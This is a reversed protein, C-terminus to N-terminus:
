ISHLKENLSYKARLCQSSPRLGPPPVLGPGWFSGMKQPIWVRFLCNRACRPLLKEPLEEWSPTLNRVTKSTMKHMIRLLPFGLFSICVCCRLFPLALPFSCGNFVVDWACCMTTELRLEVKVKVENTQIGLDSIFGFLM